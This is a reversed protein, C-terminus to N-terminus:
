VELCGPCVELCAAIIPFLSYCVEPLLPPYGCAGGGKSRPTHYLKNGIMAAQRSTRAPQRATWDRTAELDTLTAELDCRPNGRPRMYLDGRPGLSCVKLGFNDIKPTKQGKRGFRCVWNIDLIHPKPSLIKKQPLVGKVKHACRQKALNTNPMKYHGEFKLRNKANRM